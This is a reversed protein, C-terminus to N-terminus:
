RHPSRLAIVLIMSTRFFGLISKLLPVPFPRIFYRSCFRLLFELRKHCCFGIWEPGFVPSNEDSWSSSDLGQTNRTSIIFQSLEGLNCQEESMACLEVQDLFVLHFADIFSPRISPIAFYLCSLFETLYFDKKIDNSDLEKIITQVLVSRKFPDASRRVVRIMLIVFTMCRLISSPQIVPCDDKMVQQQASLQRMALKM